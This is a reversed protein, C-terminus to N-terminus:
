AACCQPDKRQPRGGRSSRRRTFHEQALWRAIALRWQVVLLIPALRAGQRPPCTGSLGRVRAVIRSVPTFIDVRAGLGVVRKRSSIARRWIVMIGETPSAKEARSMAWSPKSASILEPLALEAIFSPM